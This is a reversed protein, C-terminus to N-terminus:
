SSRADPEPAAAAPAGHGRDRGAPHAAAEVFFEGSMASSKRVNDLTDMTESFTMRRSLVYIEINGGALNGRRLVDL